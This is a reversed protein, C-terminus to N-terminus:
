IKNKLINGSKSKQELVKPLEVDLLEGSEKLQQATRLEFLSPKGADGRLTETYRRTVSLDSLKQQNIAVKLDKKTILINELTEILLEEATKGSVSKLTNRYEKDVGVYKILAEPLKNEVLELDYKFNSELLKRDEDTFSIEKISKYLDQIIKPSDLIINDLNIANGLKINLKLVMSEILKSQSISTIVDDDKSYKQLTKKVFELESKDCIDLMNEHYFIPNEEKLFEKKNKLQSLWLGKNAFLFEKKTILDAYLAKAHPNIDPNKNQILDKGEKSLIAISLNDYSMMIDKQVLKEVLSSPSEIMEEYLKMLVLKGLKRGLFYGNKEAQLVKYLEKNELAKIIEEDIEKHYKNRLSLGILHGVRMFFSSKIHKKNEFTEKEEKISDDKLFDNIENRDSYYNEKMKKSKTKKSYSNYSDEYLSKDKDDSYYDMESESESDEYSEYSEYTYSKITSDKLDKYVKDFLDTYEKSSEIKNIIENDIKIKKNINNSYEITDNMIKKDYLYQIEEIENKEFSINYNKKMMLAM